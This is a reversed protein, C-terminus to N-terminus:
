ARKLGVRKLLDAPLHVSESLDTYSEQFLANDELSVSSPNHEPPRSSANFAANESLCDFDIEFDAYIVGFTTEATTVSGMYNFCLSGAAEQRLTPELATPTNDAFLWESRLNRMPDVTGPSWAPFALSGPTISVREPTISGATTTVESNSGILIHHSDTTSVTPVYRLKLKVFRYRTFSTALNRVIAPFMRANACTTSDGCIDVTINNTSTMAVGDATRYYPTGGASACLQLCLASGRVRFPSHTYNSRIQVSRASPASVIRSSSQALNMNGIASRKTNKKKKKTKALSMALDAAAKGIAKSMPTPGPNTEVGVLRKKPRLTVGQKSLYQKEALTAIRDCAHVAYAFPTSVSLDEFLAYCVEDDKNDYQSIHNYLKLLIGRAPPDAHDLIAQVNKPLPNSSM